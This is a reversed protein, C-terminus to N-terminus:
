RAQRGSSRSVPRDLAVLRLRQSGFRPRRCRRMPNTRDSVMRCPSQVLLGTQVRIQGSSRDRCSRRDGGRRWARLCDRFRSREAARLNPGTGCHRGDRWAAKGSRVVPVGQNPLARPAHPGGRLSFSRRLTPCRADVPRTFGRTPSRTPLGRPNRRGRKGAPLWGSLPWCSCPCCSLYWAGFPCPRSLWWGHTAGFTLVRKPM